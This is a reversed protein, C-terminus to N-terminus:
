KKNNDNDILDNNDNTTSQSPNLSSLKSICEDEATESNLLNQTYKVNLALLQEKIAEEYQDDLFPGETQKIVISNKFNHARIRRTFESNDEDSAYDEDSTADSKSKTQMSYENDKNNNNDNVDIVQPLTVVMLPVISNPQSSSLPLLKRDTAPSSITTNKMAQSLIGLDPSPLNSSDPIYEQSRSLKNQFKPSGTKQNGSFSNSRKKREKSKGVKPSNLNTKQLSDSLRSMGSSSPSTSANAAPLTITFTITAPLPQEPDYSSQIISRTAITTTTSSPLNSTSSALINQNNNNSNYTNQAPRTFQGLYAMAELQEKIAEEAEQDTVPIGKPRSRIEDSKRLDLKFSSKSDSPAKKNDEMANICGITGLTM